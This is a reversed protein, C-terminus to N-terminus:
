IIKIFGILGTGLFGITGLFGVFGIFGLLEIFGMLGIFSIFGLGPLRVERHQHITISSARTGQLRPGKFDECGTGGTGQVGGPNLPKPDM